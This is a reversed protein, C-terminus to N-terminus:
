VPTWSVRTHSVTALVLVFAGVQVWPGRSNVSEEIGEFESISNTAQEAIQLAQNM